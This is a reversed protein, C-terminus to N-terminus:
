VLAMNKSTAELLAQNATVTRQDADARNSMCLIM